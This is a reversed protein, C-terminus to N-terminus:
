LFLAGAYGVFSPAPSAGSEEDSAHHALVAGRTAGLAKALAMAAAVAGPSCASRDRPGKWAARHADLTEVTRLFGADNEGLAWRRAAEGGGRPRFRHDPGYHTLDSSAIALPAFLADRVERAIPGPAADAPVGVVLVPTGPWLAAFFPMLVEVANDDWFEDETEPEADLAMAVREAAATPTPVSGLPTAWDGDLFVRIRGGEPPYHGGFVAIAPPNPARAALAKLTGAAIRGAYRWGGHPVLAGLAPGSPGELAPWGDLQGLCTAGDAPYYLGALEAPRM